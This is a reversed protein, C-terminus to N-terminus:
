LVSFVKETGYYESWNKNYFDFMRALRDQDLEDYGLSRIMRLLEHRTETIKSEDTIVREFEALYGYGANKDICLATDANLRYEDRARSWKAQYQFGAELVKKDMEELSMPALDVEWEIRATGNSSSEDNVTAKVVLITEDKTGRTRVSFSKAEKTLKHLSTAEEESIYQRFTGLLHLLNGGEFYHNKQSETYSHKYAPFNIEIAKMFKEMGDKDGLLVKIEIEYNHM